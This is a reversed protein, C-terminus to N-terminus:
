VGALFLSNRTTAALVSGSGGHGVTLACRPLLLSQAIYQEITANAPITGLACPPNDRGITAIVSCDVDALAELVVRFVPEVRAGASVGSRRSFEDDAGYAIHCSIRIGDPTM